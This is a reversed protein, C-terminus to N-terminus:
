LHRNRLDKYVDILIRVLFLTLGAYLLFTAANTIYAFITSLM